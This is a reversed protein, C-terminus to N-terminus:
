AEDVIANWDEPRLTPWRAAVEGVLQEAVVARYAQLVDIKRYLTVNCCAFVHCGALREAVAARTPADATPLADAITTQDM